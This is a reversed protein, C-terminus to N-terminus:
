MTCKPLFGNRLVDQWRQVTIIRDPLEDPTTPTLSKQLHMIEARENISPWELTAPRQWHVTGDPLIVCASSSYIVQPTGGPTCEIFSEPDFDFRSEYNANLDLPNLALVESTQNKKRYVQFKFYKEPFGGFLDWPIGFMVRWCKKEVAIKCTYKWSPIETKVADNKETFYDNLIAKDGGFYTMGKETRAGVQKETDACFVAYDREGFNGSSLAIEIKDKRLMWETKLVNEDSPRSVRAEKEYCILYLYLNKQDWMMRLNTSSVTERGGASYFTDMLVAHEWEDLNVPISPGTSVPAGLEVAAIGFSQKKRTTIM